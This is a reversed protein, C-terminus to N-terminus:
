LAARPPPRAPPRHPSRERTRVPWGRRDPPARGPLPDPLHRTRAIRRPGTAHNPRSEGRRRPVCTPRCALTARTAACRARVRGDGRAGARWQLSTGGRRPPEISSRAAGSTRPSPRPREGARAASARRATGGRKASRDRGTRTPRPMLSTWEPIAERHGYRRSVREVHSTWAGSARRPHLAEPLADHLSLTYIETTATDNFFFLFFFFPIYIM